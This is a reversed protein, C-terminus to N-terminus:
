FTHTGIIISNTLIFGRLAQVGHQPHTTKTCCLDRTYEIKSVKLVQERVCVCVCVCMCMCVCMCVCVCVCMCVHQHVCVCVHVHACSMLGALPTIM